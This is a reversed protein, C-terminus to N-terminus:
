VSRVRSLVLAQPTFSVSVTCSQGPSVLTLGGSGCGSVGSPAAFDGTFVPGSFYFSVTDNNTIKVAQAPSSQGYIVSGFNLSTPSLAVLFVVGSGSLNITLQQTFGLPGSTTFASISLSQTQSGPLSPAFTVQYSCGSGVPLPTGSTVPSNAPCDTQDSFGGNVTTGNGISASFFLPAPGTNTLTVSQTAATGLYVSGFNLQTTSATVQAAAPLVSFAIPLLAAFLISRLLHPKGRTDHMHVEFPSQITAMNGRPNLPPYGDRRESKM